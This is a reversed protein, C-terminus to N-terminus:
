DVVEQCVRVNDILVTGTGSGGFNTSLQDVLDASYSGSSPYYNDSTLIATGNVYTTVTVTKDANYVYEMKINFWNGKAM